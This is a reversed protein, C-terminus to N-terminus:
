ATGPVQCFAIEFVSEVGLVLSVGVLGERGITAIEVLSGDDMPTLMCMVGSEPFDVFQLPKNAQILSERLDVHVFEAADMVAQAVANPLRRLLLNKPQDEAEPM